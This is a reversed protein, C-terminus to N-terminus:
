RESGPKEVIAEFEAIIKEDSVLEWNTLEVEIGPEIEKLEYILDELWDRVGCSACFPGSFEVVFRKDRVEVLKAAAEPSRYM